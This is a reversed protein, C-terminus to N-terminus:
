HNGMGYTHPVHIVPETTVVLDELCEMLDKVKDEHDDLVAQEKALKNQQETQDMNACHYTKFKASLADLKKVMKSVTSHEM